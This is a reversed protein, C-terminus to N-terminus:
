KTELRLAARSFNASEFENDLVISGKPCVESCRACHVCRDLYLVMSMKRKPRPAPQGEVAPEAPLTEIQIEIAEAPCDKMCVKCGTCSEPTFRPVGRFGAPVHAKEFPYFRTVPRTVVNRLLEPVLVATKAM